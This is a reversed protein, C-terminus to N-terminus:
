RHMLLDLPNDLDAVCQVSSLSLGADFPCFSQDEGRARYDDVSKKGTSRGPMKSAIRRSALIDLLPQQHILSGSLLLVRPYNKVEELLAFPCGSPFQNIM